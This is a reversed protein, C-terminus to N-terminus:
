STIKHSNCLIFLCLRNQISQLILRFLDKLYRLIQRFNYGVAALLTNIKDGTRGKLWNRGLLGDNKAHGIVPEIVCRRRLERKIIGTVGRRQGSKYVAAQTESHGVYGKDVYARQPRSGIIRQVDDLANKLTHGDYPNGHLARSHLIFHGGPAPNINTALSAKCGFEYPKRSKGKGICEVEEAHWSLLKNKDQRQQKRIKEAKRLPETFINQLGENGAIKRNIDRIIRGLYTLLKKEAKKARKMQKAHRYRASKILALKSVRIYSQRLQVENRRAIAALHVIARHRLKADTPYTIAKEQVTTDVAVRQTDKLRLAGSEVAVKLSEQLLLALDEDGIRNRFHTMGSREIPERHQFYEEGCFYQWYPNERWRSCTEEDSLGHIHKLLHLGVMLRISVGPRGFGSYHVSLRDHLWNWDIHPSLKVLEHRLDIMNDLRSRFMDNAKTREPKKPQM